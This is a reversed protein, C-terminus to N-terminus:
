YKKILIRQHSDWVGSLACAYVNPGSYHLNGKPDVYFKLELDKIWTQFKQPIPLIQLESRDHSFIWKTEISEVVHCFNIKIAASGNAGLVVQTPQGSDTTTEYKGPLKDGSYSHPLMVQADGLDHGYIYGWEGGIITKYKVKTDENTSPAYPAVRIPQNFPLIAIHSVRYDPVPYVKIGEIEMPYKPLTLLSTKPANCSSVLIALSIKLFVKM